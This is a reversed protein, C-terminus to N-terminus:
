FRILRTGKLEKFSVVVTYEAPIDPIGQEMIICTALLGDPLTNAAQLFPSAQFVISISKGFLVWVTKLLKAPPGIDNSATPSTYITCVIAALALVESQGIKVLYEGSPATM